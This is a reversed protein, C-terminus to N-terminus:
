SHWTHTFTLYVNTLHIFLNKQNRHGDRMKGFIPLSFPHLKNSGRLDEWTCPRNRLIGTLIM